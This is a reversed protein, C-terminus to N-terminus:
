KTLLPTAHGGNAMSAFGRMVARGKGTLCYGQNAAQGAQRMLGRNIFEQRLQDFQSRTFLGKPGTWRHVSFSEGGILAAGLAKLQDPEAPLSLFDSRRGSDSVIEIRVPAAPERDVPPAQGIYGDGNLDTGLVRELRKLWAAASSIWVATTVALSGVLGFKGPNPWELAWCVATFTMGSLAGTILSQTLPIVVAATFGEQQSPTLLRTPIPQAQGYDNPTFM